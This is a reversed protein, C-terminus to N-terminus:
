RLSKMGSCTCFTDVHEGLFIREDLISNVLVAEAFLENMDEKGLCHISSDVLFLCQTRKFCFQFHFCVWQLDYKKDSYITNRIM